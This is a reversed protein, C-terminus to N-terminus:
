LRSRPSGEIIEVGAIYFTLLYPICFMVPKSSNAM